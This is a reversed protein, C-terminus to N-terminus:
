LGIQLFHKRLQTNEEWIPRVLLPSTFDRPLNYLGAWKVRAWFTEHKAYPLQM